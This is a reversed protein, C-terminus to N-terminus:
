NLRTKWRKLDPLCVKFFIAQCLWYFQDLCTMNTKTSKFLLICLLFSFIWKKNNSGGVIQYLRFLFIVLGTWSWVNPLFPLINASFNESCFKLALIFCYFAHMQVEFKKAWCNLFATTSFSKLIHTDHGIPRYTMFAYYPMYWFNYSSLGPPYILLAFVLFNEAFVSFKSIFFNRGWLIMRKRPTKKTKGPIKGNQRRLMPGQVCRARYLM